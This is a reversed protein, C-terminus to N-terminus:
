YIASVMYISNLVAKNDNMDTIDNDLIDIKLGTNKEPITLLNIYLSNGDVTVTNDIVGNYYGNLQTVNVILTGQIKESFTMKINNLAKNDFTYSVLQPAKNEVLAVYTTYPSMPTFNGGYGMVGKITIPREVTVDISSDKVTLIVTAGNESTNDIVLASIVAVGPISYNGINQASAVDIKNNFKVHIENLNSSSQVIIYPGPLETSTGTANSISIARSLSENNFNDLIFGKELTFTYKGLVQMNDIKLNILKKDTSSLQTYNLNVGSRIDDNITVLNALIVGNPLNPRVEKNFRLTLIKTDSDYSQEILLPSTKDATFNVYRKVMKEASIDKDIVNYGDWFGIEVPISGTLQIENNNLMYIVQKNNDGSVVGYTIPGGNISAWGATKIARNFTATITNYSSRAVTTLIAQARPTVDTRLVAALTYSPPMNGALDKIGSIVITFSKGYDTPAINSLNITLSMKDESPVYNLENNLMTITAPDYTTKGSSPLLTADTINLKSFDVAESFRITSIMGSDDLVVGTLIPGITDVYSMQRFYPEIAIGNMTKVADTINISYDGSLMNSSTITLTRNDEALVPTLIGPDKALNGKTDPQLALVVGSLLEGKTGIISSKDIASDFVIKIQTSSSIEASRVTASPEVIEIIIADRVSSAAADEATAKNAATAVLIVKGAKKAKVIGNTSGVIDLCEPDGGAISWYTKDSSNTPFIDRNFNYEEGIGIIHAGNVKTANNIRVATAPIKVTVKTSLTKTKKSPYTIKCKITATGKGAATVLGSSSVKVIDKNSTSWKYTSGSVKNEIVLQYTEDDGVITVSSKTFSPTAASVLVVNQSWFFSMILLLAMFVPIKKLHNFKM